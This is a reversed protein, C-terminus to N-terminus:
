KYTYLHLRGATWAAAPYGIAVSKTANCRYCPKQTECASCIRYFSSENRRHTAPFAEESLLFKCVSCQHPEGADRHRAACEQCVRHADLRNWQGITFATKGKNDPFARKSTDTEFISSATKRRKKAHSDQQYELTESRLSTCTSEYKEKKKFRDLPSTFCKEPTEKRLDYAKAKTNKKSRDWFVFKLYITLIWFKPPSPYKKFKIKLLFVYLFPSYRSLVDAKRPDIRQKQKMTSSPIKSESKTTAKWHWLCAHQQSVKRHGRLM